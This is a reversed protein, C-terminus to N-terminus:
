LEPCSKKRHQGSDRKDRGLFIRSLGTQGVPRSLRPKEPSDCLVSSLMM